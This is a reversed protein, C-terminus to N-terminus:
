EYGLIMTIVDLILVHSLCTRIQRHREETMHLYLECIPQLRPDAYIRNLGLGMMIRVINTYLPASVYPLETYVDAGAQILRACIENDCYAHTYTQSCALIFGSTLEATTFVCQSLLLRVMTTLNDRSAYCLAFGCNTARRLIRNIVDPNHKCALLAANFDLNPNHNILLNIINVDADNGCARQLAKNLTNVSYKDQLLVTTITLNHSGNILCQSFATNYKARCLPYLLEVIAVHSHLCALEMGPLLNVEKTLFYTVANVQGHICAAEFAQKFDTAGAFILMDFYEVHNCQAATTLAINSDGGHALLLFLEFTHRHTVAIKVCEDINTPHYALVLSTLETNDFKSQCLIRLAENFDLYHPDPCYKLIRKLDFLDSCRCAQNLMDQFDVQTHTHHEYHTITHTLNVRCQEYLEEM